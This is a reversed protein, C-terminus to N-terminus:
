EGSTISEIGSFNGTSASSLITTLSTLATTEFTPSDLVDHEINILM